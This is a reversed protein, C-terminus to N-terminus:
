GRHDSGEHDLIKISVSFIQEDSHIIIEDGSIIRYRESLNALGMGTSTETSYKKSVNNSIIIHNDNYTIRIFLPSEDTLTNHKIANELLLQLSFIPVFGTKNIAPITEEYQLANCFRMKQMDLYDECLKLENTLKIINNNEMSVSARLFDSLKVLYNEANEPQKRILTKLTSLSNFLFHPHLQQKLQQNTAEINKIKLQTNESEIINKKELLLVLGQIILVITNISIVMFVMILYPVFGERNPLLGIKEAHIGFEKIKWNLMQQQAIESFFVHTILFRIVLFFIFCIIYSWFYRAIKKRTSHSFKTILWTLSINVTWFLFVIFSIGL